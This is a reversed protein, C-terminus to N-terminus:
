KNGKFGQRELSEKVKPYYFYKYTGSIDQSWSNSLRGNTVKIMHDKVVKDYKKIKSKLELSDKNYVEKNYIVDKPFRPKVESKDAPHGIVLGVMPYVLEPLELLEAVAEAEKRIGGIPVIGLGLSEAAAIANSLALGVDVAGVLKAEESETIVFEEGNIESALKARYFDACFVLFVPAKDVYVQNGVLKSLKNKKEINQVSIITVQQGNISSPAAQSARIILDLDEESVADSKYDRVSRHDNLLKIVENM